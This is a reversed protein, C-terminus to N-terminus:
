EVKGVFRYGLKEVCEKIQHDTISESQISVQNNTRDAMVESVGQLDMLGQEVKAKCHDCTMGEVKYQLINTKMNNAKEKDKRREKQNSIIKMLYGNVILLVLLASSTWTFGCPNKGCPIEL